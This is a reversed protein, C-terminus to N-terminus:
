DWYANTKEWDPYNDTLWQCLKDRAADIDRMARHSAVSDGSWNPKELDGIEQKVEGCADVVMVRHPGDYSEQVSFRRSLFAHASRDYFAAKFFISGRKRGKADIIDIWMSHDTPRKRWGDPFQASVFTDDVNDGFIFGVKEFDGRTGRLDIPLTDQFSQEIQGEKEQREIGGPTLAVAFNQIDGRALASLAAPTMHTPTPKSKM